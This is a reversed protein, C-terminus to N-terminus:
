FSSVKKAHPNYRRCFEIEALLKEDFDTTDWVCRTKNHNTKRPAPLRNEILLRRVTRLSIGLFEAVQKQTILLM